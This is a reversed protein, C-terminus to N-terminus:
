RETLYVTLIKLFVALLMSLNNKLNIIFVGNKFFASLLIILLFEFSYLRMLCKAMCLCSNDYFAIALINANLTLM